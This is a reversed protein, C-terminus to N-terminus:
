EARATECTVHVSHVQFSEDPKRPPIGSDIWSEIPGERLQIGGRGRVYNFAHSVREVAQM